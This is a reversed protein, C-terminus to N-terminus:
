EPLATKRLKKLPNRVYLCIFPMEHYQYTMTEFIYEQLSLLLTNITQDKSLLWLKIM